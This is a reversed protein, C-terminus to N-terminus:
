KDVYIKLVFKLEVTFHDEWITIQKLWRKVLAEDFVTLDSPHDKIFDQLETIRQLQEDRQVTDMSTQQRKERLAFIQDAIEDYAEKNNAKKVLEQQLEMLKEDIGDTTIAASARIVSAINQQLQKQYKSKYGLLENLAILVIEQLDLENVTRAHCELGTAELRSICRWVVSKCGHNNWHIRRFMEGCDGCIVIQSFCHNCSYSRKKGNASTKVVRRRVLEEQVRMYIEKPIIAEHNGEVYYQPVIGTNKVRTKNLFDTTYTKQLLADGIYKENRLIKNITSTHWKTKGAGTLIGDAKLATSVSLVTLHLATLPIHERDPTIRVLRHRNERIEYM